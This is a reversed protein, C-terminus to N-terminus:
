CSVLHKQLSPTYRHVNDGSVLFTKGFLRGQFVYDTNAKLRGERNDLIDRLLITQISNTRELRELKSSGRLVQKIHVKYREVLDLHRAPKRVRGVLKVTGCFCVFSFDIHKNTM